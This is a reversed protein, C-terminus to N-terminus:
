CFLVLDGFFRKPAFFILNPTLFWVYRTAPPTPRPASRGSETIGKRSQAPAIEKGNMNYSTADKQWNESAQHGKRRETIEGWARLFSQFIRLPFFFFLIPFVFFFLSFRFHPNEANSAHVDCFIQPIKMFNWWCKDLFYLEVNQFIHSREGFVTCLTQCAILTIM